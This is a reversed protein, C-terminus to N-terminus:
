LRRLRRFGFFARITKWHKKTVALGPPEPFVDRVRSASNGAIEYQNRAGETERTELVGRYFPVGGVQSQGVVDCFDTDLVSCIAAMEGCCRCRFWGFKM